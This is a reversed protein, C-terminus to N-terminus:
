SKGETFARGARRLPEHLGTRERVDGPSEMGPLLTEGGYTLHCSSFFAKVISRNCSFVKESRFGGASLLYGERVGGHPPGEHHVYRRYWLSQVRDIFAKSVAPPGLFFVPLAFVVRDVSLLKGYFPQMDDQIVCFGREACRGCETCHSFTLDRLSVREINWADERVGELFLDLMTDTNGGRRPSGYLALLEKM